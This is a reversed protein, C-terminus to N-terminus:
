DLRAASVGGKFSAEFAPFSLFHGRGGPVRVLPASGKAAGVAWDSSGLIIRESLPYTAAKTTNLRFFTFAAGKAEQRLFGIDRM